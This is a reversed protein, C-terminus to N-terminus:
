PGGAIQVDQRVSAGDGITVRLAARAVQDLFSPQDWVGAEADTLAALFYEGAPLGGIVFTGDTAPRVARSRRAGAFWHARDASFLVVAFDSAPAGAATQLRGALEAPRDSMTLVVDELTRLDTGFRLPLDLLDRGAATASKPWWRSLGPADAASSVELAFRGPLIDAISFTGDAAPTVPAPPPLGIVPGAAVGAARLVAPDLPLPVLSVRMAGANAAPADPSGEFVLRGSLSMAPELVLRLDRIDSDTVRVNAAAWDGQQNRAAVAYLGPTLDTFRFDSISFNTGSVSFTRVLQSQSATSSQAYVPLPPGVRSITKTAPAPEGDPTVVVVTGQVTLYPALDIAFDVDERVEGARVSVRVADVASTTGPYFIPAWGYTRLVAPGPPAPPPPQAPQGSVRQQLAFLSADIDAVTPRYIPGRGGVSGLAAVVVYEGPPLNFARYAGSADTTLSESSPAYEGPGSIMAAPAVVVPINAAPAGAADRLRGAIVAGRTLTIRLDDVRQGAALAVPTGADGPRRAGYASRLYAPRSAAVAYRGPRLNVFEFRGDDGAIVSVHVPNGPEILSVVAHRLPQDPQDAALVVGALTGPIEQAANISITGLTAAALTAAAFLSSVQQWRCNCGGGNLLGERMTM